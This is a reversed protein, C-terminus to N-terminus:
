ARVDVAGARPAPGDLADGAQPKSSSASARSSTRASRMASSDDAKKLRKLAQPLTLSAKQM